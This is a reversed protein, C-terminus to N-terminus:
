KHDQKTYLRISTEQKVARAVERVAVQLAKEVTTTSQIKQNIAAILSEREARKQVERYSRTNRLAVAVQNSISHLLETDNQTLGGTVNHQVDLVGLVESGIAIPVAVECRTEPLLPNPLWNPNSATDSVLVTTNTEAARGVLGKGKSIRHGQALMTQGAEGTGGAMVLEQGSEDLLYIHAHYYGFASQVQEVVERVLEGQNLITSLRRSVETSTALAKTRDAVRHELGQLTNQLQTTMSNFTAALVGIEDASNAEARSSLNGAAVEEATRTLQAIPRILFDSLAYAGAMALLIVLTLVIVAGRIGERIPAYAEEQSQHYVVMWGLKNFETDEPLDTMSTQIVVSPTNPNSNPANAIASESEYDMEVMGQGAIAQLENLQNPDAPDLQGRNFVYAPRGPIYLETEGTDGVVEGLIPTLASTQLTTRLIGVIEGTGNARVPMALQIAFADASQDYKPESIYLAGQGNNYAAKWWAEDAQYYDSTRSATGILGGYVDTIFVEVNSPYSNQFNSLQQSIPNSLYERVLPDDNNDAADAAQWQADREELLSHISSADGEYASNSAAAAEQFSVNLSLATLATIQENFLASINLAVSDVHQKLERELGQRLTSATNTFTYISLIAATGL